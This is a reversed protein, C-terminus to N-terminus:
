PFQLCAVMPNYLRANHLSTAMDPSLPAQMPMYTHTSLYDSIALPELLNAKFLLVYQVEFDADSSVGPALRANAM